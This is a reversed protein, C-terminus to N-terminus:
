HASPPVADVALVEGGAEMVSPARGPNVPVRISWHRVIWAGTPLRVFTMHGGARRVGMRRVGTYDFDLSRLEGSRRDLWFVGEIDPKERDELPEFALGILGELPAGDERLRFCHNDQFITSLLAGEDPGHYVDTDGDPRVWGEEHLVEPPAAHFPKPSRVWATDAVQSELVRGSGDWTREWTNLRFNLAGGQRAWEAGSLAKRAEEWIVAVMGADTPHVTCARDRDVVVDQIRIPQAGLRLELGDLGEAPVLVDERELLQYGIREVRILYAGAGPMRARFAGDEGSLVGAVRTGAGDVFSVLAGAVMAGDADVVRGTAFQAAAPAPLLLAIAAALTLSRAALT